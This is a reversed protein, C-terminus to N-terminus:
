RHCIWCDSLQHVKIDYEEEFNSITDEAIYEAWNYVKLEGEASASTVGLVLGLAAASSFTLKVLFRM